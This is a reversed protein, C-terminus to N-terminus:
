KTLIYNSVIFSKNKLDNVNLSSMINIMNHTTLTKFM